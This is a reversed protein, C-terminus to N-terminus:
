SGLDLQNKVLQFYKGKLQTLGQHNGQEIIRGQDLMVIKDANKVTSLRHAVIIVTRDKFIEKMNEVIIRENNADLSSTAEDFFLYAPDRYVARAILLRQKQGQSLGMGGSGLRTDFGLPLSEVFSLINSVACARKLRDNDAGGYEIAINNAITDDFIFGDQLVAGCQSRWFSPSIESFDNPGCKINGEYSDYYKLLLKLLTTKGSGSVGVIATTKGKPIDLDINKLVPENNEGPYSFTLGSFRLSRDYPLARIMTGNPDDEENKMRHIENLRDMNIKADQAAQVFGIFQEIPGTLQGIIYQIAFMAGFTIQGGIVLKAVVFTLVVDKLGNLFVAGAQQLQGYNLNKINLRFFQVQINEWEWRKPQEINQLRIEDMGELLQLTMNNERASVNFIQYNVKKRVRLFLKTWYFYLAVGAVFILFLEVKYMMLVISFVIFNLTSFFTNLLPGTLFSQLKKTDFMRQFLDGTHQRDFYAIPLRCVKIWFDSLVAFNVVTSIHLLLRTRIFEAVVRSLIIALQACLIVTIFNFDRRAIGVDVISQVLFPFILQAVSSILFAFLVGGIKGRNHKFYEMMRRWSFVKGAEGPGTYFKFTPELLMVYGKGAGDESIDTAWYILFDTNSYWIVQKMRPDACRVANKKSGDRGPLYAIYRNDGWKLICPRKINRTLQRYSLKIWRARFGIKEAARSIDLLSEQGGASAAVTQLRAM